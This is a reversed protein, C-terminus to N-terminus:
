NVYLNSRFKRHEKRQRLPLKRRASHYSKKTRMASTEMPMRPSNKIAMATIGERYEATRRGPLCGSTESAPLGIIWRTHSLSAAPGLADAADHNGRVIFADQLGCSAELRLGDNARLRVVAGAGLAHASTATSIELRPGLFDEHVHLAVLLM